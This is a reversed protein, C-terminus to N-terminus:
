STLVYVLIEFQVICVLFCAFPLPHSFLFAVMGYGVFVGFALCARWFSFCLYCRNGHLLLFDWGDLFFTQLFTIFAADGNELQLGGGVRSVRKRADWRLAM